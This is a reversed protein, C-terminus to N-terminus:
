KHEWVFNNKNVKFIEEKVKFIEIKSLNQPHLLHFHIKKLSVQYIYFFVSVPIALIDSWAAESICIIHSLLLAIMALSLPLM